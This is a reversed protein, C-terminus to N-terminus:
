LQPTVHSDNQFFTRLICKHPPVIRRELRVIGAVDFRRVIGGSLLRFWPHERAGLSIM